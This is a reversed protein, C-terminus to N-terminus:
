GGTAREALLFAPAGFLRTLGLARGGAELTESLGRRGLARHVGMPLALERMLAFRVFGHRELGAELTARRHVFFPRTDGEIRRKLRFLLPELLNASALPAFDVLLRHRCVRAMEAFLADKREVHALLRIAVVLDFSRDAFPLDFLSAAVFRARGGDAARLGAIRAACAPDSGQVWVEHGQELLFPTLQGHGGGIELVRLPRSAPGLLRQATKKQVDLFFAGTPGAFRRAYGDSATEIDPTTTDHALGARGAPIPDVALRSGPLRLRIQGAVAHLLGDPRGVVDAGPAGSRLFARLSAAPRARELAGEFWLGFRAVRLAEGALPLPDSGPLVPRDTTRLLAPRPLLGPRGANDGLLVGAAAPSALFDRLRRARAFWWKGFGWPLVVLAGAAQARAVADELPLDDPLDDRREPRCALALVELGERTRLQRGAIVILRDRGQRRAILADPEATAALRWGGTAARGDALDGFVDVGRMEALCLVVSVAAPAVGRRVAEAEARALAADFIASAPLAPHLHVHGDVLFPGHLRTHLRARPSPRPQGHAPLHPHTSV